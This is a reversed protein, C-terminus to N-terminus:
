MLLVLVEAHSSQLKRIANPDQVSVVQVRDPDARRAAWVDSPRVFEDDDVTWGAFRRVCRSAVHVRLWAMQQLLRALSRALSEVFWGVSLCRFWKACVANVAGRAGYGGIKGGSQNLLM